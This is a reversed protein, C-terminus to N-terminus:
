GAGASLKLLNGTMRERVWDDLFVDALDVNPLKRELDVIENIILFDEDECHDVLAPM